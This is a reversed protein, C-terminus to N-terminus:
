KMAGLLPRLPYCREGRSHECECCQVARCPVGVPRACHVGYFRWENRWAAPLGPRLEPSCRCPPYPRSLPPIPIYEVDETM